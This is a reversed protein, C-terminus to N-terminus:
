RLPCRTYSSLLATKSVVTTSSYLAKHARHSHEALERKSRRRRRSRRIQESSREDGESSDGGVRPNFNVDLTDFRRSPTSPLDPPRRYPSYPTYPLHQETAGRKRQYINYTPRRLQTPPATSAESDSNLTETNTYQGSSPSTVPPHHRAYTWEPDHQSDTYYSEDSLRRRFQLLAMGWGSHDEADSDSGMEDYASVM